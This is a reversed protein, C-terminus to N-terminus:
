KNKKILDHFSTPNENQRSVFARKPAGLPMPRPSPDTLVHQFTHRRLVSQERTSFTPAEFFFCCLLFLFFHPALEDNSEGGGRSLVEKFFLGRCECLRWFFSFRFAFLKEKEWCVSVVCVCVCVCLSLSFPLCGQCRPALLTANPCDVGLSM